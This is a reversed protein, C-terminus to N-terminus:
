PHASRHQDSAATTDCHSQQNAAAECCPSAETTGTAADHPHVLIRPRLTEMSQKPEPKAMADNEAKKEEEEGRRRSRGWGTSSPRSALSFTKKKKSMGCLVSQASLEPRTCECAHGYRRQQRKLTLRLFRAARRLTFNTGAKMLVTYWALRCHRAATLLVCVEFGLMRM